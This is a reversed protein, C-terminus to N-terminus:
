CIVATYASGACPAVFYCKNTDSNWGSFTFSRGEYKLVKQSIKKVDDWGNPVDITLFDRGVDPRSSFVVPVENASISANM